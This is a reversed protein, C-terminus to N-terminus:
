TRPVEIGWFVYRARKVLLKDLVTPNRFGLYCNFSTSFNLRDAVREFDANRAVGLGPYSRRLFGVEIAKIPGLM